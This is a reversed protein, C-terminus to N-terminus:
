KKTLRLAKIYDIEKELMRYPIDGLKSLPHKNLLKHSLDLCSEKGDGNGFIIALLEATDLAQPGNRILKYSPKSSFHLNKINM